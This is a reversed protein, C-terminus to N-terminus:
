RRSFHAVGSIRVDFKSPTWRLIREWIRSSQLFDRATRHVFDITWRRFPMIVSEDNRIELLGRCRANLRAKHIRYVEVEEVAKIPKVATRLAYDQDARERELHALTFIPLPKTARVALQFLKGSEARYVKHIRGLILAFFGELDEPLSDLRRRLMFIDDEEVLGDLLERVVLAVWLFVGNARQVMDTILGAYEDSSASTTPFLADGQLSETAFRYIDDKTLDQLFMKFKSDNEM